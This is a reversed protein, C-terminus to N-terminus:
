RLNIFINKKLDLHMFRWFSAFSKDSAKRLDTVFVSTFDKSDLCNLWWHGWLKSLTLVNGMIAYCLLNDILAETHTPMLRELM